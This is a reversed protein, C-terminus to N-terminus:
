DKEEDNYLSDSQYLVSKGLKNFKSTHGKISRLRKMGHASQMMLKQSKSFSDNLSDNIEQNKSVVREIRSIDVYPFGSM